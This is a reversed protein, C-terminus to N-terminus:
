ADTDLGGDAHGECPPETALYGHACLVPEAPLPAGHTVYSWSARTAERFKDDPVIASLVGILHHDLLRRDADCLVATIWHKYELGNLAM